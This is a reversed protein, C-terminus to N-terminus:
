EKMMMHGNIIELRISRSLNPKNSYYDRGDFYIGLIFEISEIESYDKIGANSLNLCVVGMIKKGPNAKFETGSRPYFAANNTDWDNISADTGYLNVIYSTNNILVCNFDILDDGILSKRLKYERTLYVKIGDQDYLVVDSNSRDNNLTDNAERLALEADIQIKLDRLQEDTLVKLDIDEAIAVSVLLMLSLFLCTIRKM